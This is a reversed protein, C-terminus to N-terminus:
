SGLAPGVQDSLVETGDTIGSDAKPTVGCRIYYNQDEVQLTYTSETEGSIATWDGGEVNKHYWQFSTGSETDGDQDSYGYYVTLIDGVNTTGEVYPKTEETVEVGNPSWDGVTNEPTSADPGRGIADNYITVATDTHIVWGEGEDGVIDDGGTDDGITMRAIISTEPTPDTVYYLYMDPTVTRTYLPKDNKTDTKTYNGNLTDNEQVTYGVAVEPAYNGSGTLSITLPDTISEATITVTAPFTGSAQPQFTGTVATTAEPELTLPLAETQLSYNTTDSLVASSVTVPDTGTNTLTVSLQKSGSEAEVMGFDVSVGDASLELAGNLADEAGPAEVRNNCGTVILITICMSLAAAAPVFKKWFNKMIFVEVLYFYIV